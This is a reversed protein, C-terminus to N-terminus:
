DHLLAEGANLFDLVSIKVIGISRAHAVRRDSRVTFRRHDWSCTAASTAARGSNGSRRRLGRTISELSQRLEIRFKSVSKRIMLGGARQSRNAYHTRSCSRSLGLVDGPALGRNINRLIARLAHLADGGARVCGQGISRLVNAGDQFG